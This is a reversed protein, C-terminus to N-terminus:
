CQDFKQDVSSVEDPSSLRKDQLTSILKKTAIVRVKADASTAAIVM